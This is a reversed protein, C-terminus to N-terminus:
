IFSVQIIRVSTPTTRPNRRMFEFTAEAKFFISHHFQSKQYSIQLKTM